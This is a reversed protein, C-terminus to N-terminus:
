PVDSSLELVIPPAPACPMAVVVVRSYDDEPLQDGEVGRLKAGGLDRVLRPVVNSHSAVVTVSGDAGGRLESVLAAPDDAARVEVPLSLRSALPALTQQTRQYKTAVLRTVRASALMSALMRARAQGRESLPPDKDAASAKEAHRVVIV